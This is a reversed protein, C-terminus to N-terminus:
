ARAAAAEEHARTAREGAERAQGESEALHQKAVSLEERLTGVQATFKARDENREKQIQELRTTTATLKAELQSVILHLHSTSRQIAESDAAYADKSSTPNGSSPSLSSEAGKTSKRPSNNREKASSPALLAKLDDREKIVELMAFEAKSRSERMNKLEELAASLTRSM